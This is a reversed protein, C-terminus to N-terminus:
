GPRTEPSPQDVNPKEASKTNIFKLRAMQEQSPKDHLHYYHRVMKSDQHGLWNMLMQEPVNNTASMSCFYHRFSHLRGDRFGKKDGVSPFRKALPELVERILINRVTDPKLIGGLPGHFIRGDPHRAIKELVPRLENAIPLSRDRGGKTARAADRKSKTARNHTDTLRISNKDVDDWHLSALESIRLGTTALAIIVGGLWALEPNAQCHEVMVAVEEPTYCYTTTGKPKELPLVFACSAPILKAEIFWKM